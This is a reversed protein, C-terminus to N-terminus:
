EAATAAVVWEPREVTQEGREVDLSIEYNRPDDSTQRVLLYQALSGAPDTVAWSVNAAAITGREPRVTVEGDTGTVRYSEAGEYWNARPEYTHASGSDTGRAEYAVVDLSEVVVSASGGVEAAINGENREVVFTVRDGSDNEALLTQADDGTIRERLRPADEAPVRRREYVSGNPGAQYQESHHGDERLEQYAGGDATVVGELGFREEGDVVISGTVSYADPEGLSFGEVTQNAGRPEATSFPYLAAVLLSLCCLIGVGALLIATRREM